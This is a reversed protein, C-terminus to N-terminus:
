GVMLLVLAKKDFTADLEKAILEISEEKIYFPEEPLKMALNAPETKPEFVRIYVHPFREVYRWRQYLAQYSSLGDGDLYCSGLRILAHESHLCDRRKVIQYTQIDEDSLWLQFAKMLSRYGGDMWGCGDLLDVLHPQWIFEKFAKNFARKSQYINQM